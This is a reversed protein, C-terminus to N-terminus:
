HNIHQEILPLLEKEFLERSIIRYHPDYTEEFVRSHHMVYQGERLLNAIETSDRSYDALHLDMSVIVHNIREWERKWQEVSIPEIGNVSRVFVDFYTPYDVWGEKIVSLNVRYFNGLYGTPEYCAGGFQQSSALEKRLYTSAATTDSILHGPGFRDQFFNKYLDRLTSLPYARMQREVAEEIKEETTRQGYAIMSMLLMLISLLLKM